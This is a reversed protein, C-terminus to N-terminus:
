PSDTDENTLRLFLNYRGVHAGNEAMGKITEIIMNDDCNLPSQATELAESVANKISEKRYREAHNDTITAGAYIGACFIVIAIFGKLLDKFFDRNFKDM